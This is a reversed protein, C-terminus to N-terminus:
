RRTPAESQLVNQVTWNDEYRDVMREIAALPVGHQNRNAMEEVNRTKWWETQPELSLVEHGFELADLVYPKAEWLQTNTNDIIILSPTGSSILAERCRNQNWQHAEGLLKPRFDYVGDRDFFYDDSSLLKAYPYEAALQNAFYSKGSGPVGRLVLLLKSPLPNPLGALRLLSSM